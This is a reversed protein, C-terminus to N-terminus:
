HRRKDHSGGGMEKDLDAARLKDTASFTSTQVAWVSGNRYLTESVKQTVKDSKRNQRAM